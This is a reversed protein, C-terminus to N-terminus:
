VWITKLKQLKFNNCSKDELVLDKIIKEDSASSFSSKWGQLIVKESLQIEPGVYKTFGCLFRKLAEQTEKLYKESFMAEEYNDQYKYYLNGARLLLTFLSRRMPCVSWFKSPSVWLITDFNTLAFHTRSEQKLVSETRWIFEAINEGQNIKTKFFLNTEENFVASFEERCSHFNLPSKDVAFSDVSVNVNLSNITKQECLKV